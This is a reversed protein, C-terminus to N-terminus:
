PCQSELIHKCVRSRTIYKMVHVSMFKRLFLPLLSLGEQRRLLRLGATWGDVMTAHEVAEEPEATRTGGPATQWLPIAGPAGHRAAKGAPARRSDPLAEQRRDLWLGVGAPLEIPVDVIHIPGDHPGVLM